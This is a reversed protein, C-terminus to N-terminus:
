PLAHMARFGVNPSRAYDMFADRIRADCSSKPSFWGGGRLSRLPSKPLLKPSGDTPAESAATTFNSDECWERVNGLMDFFGFGNPRKAGVPHVRQDSNGRHWAVADFPGADRRRSGARAAVEWQTSSPLSLGTKRLYAQVDRWSVSEVPAYQGATSFRSPNSDMVARWQLQTCETQALLFAVLTVQCPPTPDYRGGFADKAAGVEYTGAPVLVFTMTIQETLALEYEPCGQANVHVFAFGTITPPPDGRKWLQAQSASPASSVDGPSEPGAAISDLSRSSEHGLLGEDQFAQAPSAWGLVFVIMFFANM